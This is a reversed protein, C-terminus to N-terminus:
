TPNPRHRGGQRAFEEGVARQSAYSRHEVSLLLVAVAVAAVLAMMQRTSVQTPVGECCTALFHFLGLLIMALLLWEYASIALQAWDWDWNSTAVNLISNDFLFPGSDGLSLWLWLFLLLPGLRIANGYYM